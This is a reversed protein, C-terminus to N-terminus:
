GASVGDRNGEQQRVDSVGAASAPLGGGQVGGPAALFVESPEGTDAGEDGETIEDASAISQKVIVRARRLLEERERRLDEDSLEGIEGRGIGIGVSVGPHQEMENRALEMIEIMRRSCTLFLGIEKGDREFHCNNMISSLRQRMRELEDLRQKKDAVPFEKVTKLYETRFQAIYRHAEPLLLIKEVIRRNIRMRMPFTSILTSMIESETYGEGVMKYISMRLAQPISREIGLGPSPM